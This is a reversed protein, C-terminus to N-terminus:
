ELRYESAGTRVAGGSEWGSGVARFGERMAPGAHPIARVEKAERKVVLIVGSRVRDSKFATFFNLRDDDRSIRLLHRPSLFGFLVLFDPDRDEGEAFGPHRCM